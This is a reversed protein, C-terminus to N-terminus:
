LGRRAFRATQAQEYTLLTDDCCIYRELEKELDSDTPTRGTKKENDLWAELHAVDAATQEEEWILDLRITTESLDTLAVM